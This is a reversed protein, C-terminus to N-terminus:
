EVSEWTDLLTITWFAVEAGRFGTCCWCTCMDRPEVVVEKGLPVLLVRGLKRSKTTLRRLQGTKQDTKGHAYIGRVDAM